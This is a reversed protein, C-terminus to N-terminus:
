SGPGATFLYDSDGQAGAEAALTGDPAIRRGEYGLGRLLDWVEGATSGARALHGEVLEIMLAPHFRQLSRRAGGLVRAEWGEVDLKVFDLRALGCSEALDDLTILRVTEALYSREGQDAGLHSLGFGVSGSAKVPVQLEAVGARDSLGLAHVTVNNM